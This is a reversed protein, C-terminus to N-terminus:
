LYKKNINRHLIYDAASNVLSINKIVRLYKFYDGRYCPLNIGRQLFFRISM